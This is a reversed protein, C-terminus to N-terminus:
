PQRELAGIDCGPVGDGNGDVGRPNGYLDVETLSCGAEGIPIFDVAAAPVDYPWTAGLTVPPASPFTQPVDTGAQTCGSFPGGWLSYGASTAGSGSCVITILHTNVARSLLTSQFVSVGDGSTDIVGSWLNFLASRIVLVSGENEVAHVGGFLISNDIGAIGGPSVTLAVGEFPEPGTNVISSRRLQLLGAVNLQVGHPFPNSPDEPEPVPTVLGDAQLHGGAAVDISVDSLTVAKPAGWNIQVKGTIVLDAGAYEGPPVTISAFPLTNGEDVAAQLSCDGAGPTIECVGDGPAHDPGSATTTVAILEPPTCGALGGALLVVTALLAGRVFRSGM